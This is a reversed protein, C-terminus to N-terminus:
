RNIRTLNGSGFFDCNICREVAKQSNITLTQFTHGTASIPTTYSDGCSCTWTTEGDTTCTAETTVASTYEHTHPDYYVYLVGTSHGSKGSSVSVSATAKHGSHNQKANGNITWTYSYSKKRGGVNGSNYLTEGCSCSVTFYASGGDECGNNTQCYISVLQDIPCAATSTSASSHSVCECTKYDYVESAYVNNYNPLIICFSLLLCLVIKQMFAMSKNKYFM